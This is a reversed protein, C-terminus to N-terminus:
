AQFVGRLSYHASEARACLRARVIYRPAPRCIGGSGRVERRPVM